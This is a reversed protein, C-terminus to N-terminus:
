GTGKGCVMALEAYRLLEEDTEAGSADTAVGVSATVVVAEGDLEFPLSFSGILRRAASPDVSGFAGELLVAVRRRRSASHRDAERFTAQLRM